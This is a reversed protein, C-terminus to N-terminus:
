LTNARCLAFVWFNDKKPNAKSFAPQYLRGTQLIIGSQYLPITTRKSLLFFGGLLFQVTERMM